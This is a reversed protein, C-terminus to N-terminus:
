DYRYVQECHCESEHSIVNLGRFRKTAMLKVYNFLVIRVDSVTIDPVNLIPFSKAFFDIEYVGFKLPKFEFYGNNLSDCETCDILVGNQYLYVIGSIPIKRYETYQTLSRGDYGLPFRCIISAALNGSIGGMQQGFAFPTQFLCVFVIIFFHKMLGICIYALKAKTLTSATAIHLAWWCATINTPPSGRQRLYAASGIHAAYKHRQM